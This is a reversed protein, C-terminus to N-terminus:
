CILHKSSCHMISGYCDSIEVLLYDSLCYNSASYCKIYRVFTTVTYSTIDIIVIYIKSGWAYYLSSIVLTIRESVYLIVQLLYIAIVQNGASAFM